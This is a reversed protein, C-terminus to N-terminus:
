SPPGSGAAEARRKMEARIAVQAPSNILDLVRDIRTVIAIGTNLNESMGDPDDPGTPYVGHMLGHLWSTGGSGAKVGTGRLFLGEPTDRLTSLHVFVPCGSLGGISHVEVLTVVDLGTELEV